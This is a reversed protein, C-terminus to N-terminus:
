INSLDIRNGQGYKRVLFNLKNKEETSLSYTDSLIKAWKNPFSRKGLEVASLYSTSVGLISAMRKATEGNKVRLIRLFKGIETLM